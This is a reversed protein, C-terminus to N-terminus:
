PLDALQAPTIRGIYTQNPAYVVADAFSRIHSPLAKLYESQPNAIREMTQTTGVHVVLDPTHVLVYSAAKIVGNM